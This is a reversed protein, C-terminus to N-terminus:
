QDKHISCLASRDQALWSQFEQMIAGIGCKCPKGQKTTGACRPTGDQAVWLDYLDETTGLEAAFIGKPNEMFTQVAPADLFIERSGLPTPMVAAFMIGSREVAELTDLDLLM